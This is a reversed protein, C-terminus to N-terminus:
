SALPKRMGVADQGRPYYRRFREAIEFGSRLFLDLAALNAQATVLRLELAGGRRASREVGALLLKGVGRGRHAPDVAIADLSAVPRRGGEHPALTAFGVPEEAIVAVLTVVGPHMAARVSPAGARPSYEGFASKALAEVFPADEARYARLRPLMSRPM